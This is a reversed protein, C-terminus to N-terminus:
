PQEKIDPTKDLNRIAEACDEAEEGKRSNWFAGYKHEMARAVCVRACDEIAQARGDALGQRYNNWDPKFTPEGEPEALRARLAAIAERVSLRAGAEDKSLADLAMKLMERDTM